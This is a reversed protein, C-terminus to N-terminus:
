EMRLSNVPNAMAARISHFSITLLAIVITIMGVFVFVWLSINIRYAFHELWKSMAWWAVPAAIIAAIFVPKLFDKSLETVINAINAGLVKRIGIEKTRQQISYISLGFIGLCAILIALASFYEFIAGLKTESKYMSNLTDDLFTFEFPQATYFEKFKKQTFNIAIDPTLNSYRVYLYQFRNSVIHMVLPQVASKLPTINFNKVVGIIKGSKLVRDPLVWEFKKGIAQAPTQWGSQKIAEENLIFGENEDTAFEKKFDRGAVIKMQMTKIFDEDVFLMQMSANKGQAANENHVQNVPIKIGPLTSAASASIIRPDNLLSTKFSELKASDSNKPLTVVLAHDKNFGPNKTQMFQLQRYVIITSAILVISIVFQFSVLAKRLLDGKFNKLFKGKLVEVPKFSSLVFAPYIGAIIGVFLTLLVLLLILSYNNSFNLSLSRESLQNFIPLTLITILLSLILAVISVFISEGLFQKILQKREAGVVKRLGVEKARQLSRVTSLNMFNFCAILLVFLAIGSFVYVYTIDGNTGIEGTTQSRLHIDTIPQLHIEQRGDANPNNDIYKQSFQKFKNELANVSAGDNLLVYTYFMHFSWFNSIDGLTQMSVLANFTFHSNAPPDGAIGTVQLTFTRGFSTTIELPKGIANSNGFYKAAVEKTLIISNPADLAHHPDGKLLSFSFVDFFTSDCFLFDKEYNHEKGPEGVLSKDDKLLRVYKKIEPYDHQMLPAWPSPTLALNAKGDTSEMISTVRYINAAHMNFKDYSLENQIFLFM